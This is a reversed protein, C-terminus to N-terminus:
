NLNFILSFFKTRVALYMGFFYAIAQKTYDLVNLFKTLNKSYYFSAIIRIIIFFSNLSEYLIYSDNLAAYKEAENFLTKNDYSNYNTRFNSNLINLYSFISISIIMQSMFEIINFYSEAFYNYCMWMFRLLYLLGRSLVKKFAVAAEM